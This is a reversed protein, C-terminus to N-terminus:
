NPQHSNVDRYYDYQSQFKVVPFKKKRINMNINKKNESFYFVSFPSLPPYIVQKSIYQKVDDESIQSGNTRAVFAVPVEGAAEDQMRFFNIIKKQKCRTDFM